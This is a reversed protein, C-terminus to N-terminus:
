WVCEQNTGFALRSKWVFMFIYSINLGLFVCDAGTTGGDRCRTVCKGGRRRGTRNAKKRQRQLGDRGCCCCTLYKNDASGFPDASSIQCPLSHTHTHPPTWILNQCTNDTESVYPRGLVGGAPYVHACSAAPYIFCIFLRSSQPCPSSHAGLRKNILRM